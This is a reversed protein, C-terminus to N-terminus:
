LRALQRELQAIQRDLKDLESAGRRPTGQEVPENKHALMMHRRLGQESKFVRGCLECRLQGEAFGIRGVDLQPMDRRIDNVKQPVSTFMENLETVARKVQKRVKLHEECKKLANLASIKTTLIAKRTERPERIRMFLSM